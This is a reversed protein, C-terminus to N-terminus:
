RFILLSTSLGQWERLDALFLEEYWLLGIGKPYWDGALIKTALGLCDSM